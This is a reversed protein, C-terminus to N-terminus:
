DYHMDIANTYSINIITGKNPVSEIEFIAPIMAARAKMNNVGSGESFFDDTFGKGDDSLSIRCENKSFLIHTKITSADSHKVINNLAEQLIRFLIIQKSEEIQFPEGETLLEVEFLKTKTIKELEAYFSRLWGLKKINEPNISKSIDRLTDIAENLLSDIEIIRQEDQKNNIRALTKVHALAISIITGINDHLERSITELTQFQIELQTKLLEKDFDNKLDGIEHIHRFKRKQNIFLATIVLSILIVIILTSGVLIILAAKSLLKEQM